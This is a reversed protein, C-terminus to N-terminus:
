HRGVLSDKAFVVTRWEAPTEKPGELEPESVYATRLSVAGFVEEYGEVPLDSYWRGDSTKAGPHKTPVSAILIGNHENSIVGEAHSFEGVFDQPKFLFM